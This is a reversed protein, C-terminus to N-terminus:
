FLLAWLLHKPERHGKYERFEDLLGWVQECIHWNVGFQSCFDRYQTTTPEGNKLIEFSQNNRIRAV